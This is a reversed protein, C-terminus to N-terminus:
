QCPRDLKAVRKESVFALLQEVRQGQAVEGELTGVATGGHEREDDHGSQGRSRIERRAIGEMAADLGELTQPVLSLM